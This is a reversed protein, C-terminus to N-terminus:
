ELQKRRFSVRGHLIQLLDQGIEEFQSRIENGYGIASKARRLLPSKLNRRLELILKSEVCSRMECADTGRASIQVANKVPNLFSSNSIDNSQASVRRSSFGCEHGRLISIGVCILQDSMNAGPFFGSFNSRESNGDSSIGLFM